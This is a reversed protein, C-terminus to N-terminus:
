AWDTSPRGSSPITSLFVGVREFMRSFAAAPNGPKRDVYGSASAGCFEADGRIGRERRLRWALHLLM